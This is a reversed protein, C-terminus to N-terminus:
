RALLLVSARSALEGPTGTIAMSVYWGPLGLSWITSTRGSPCDM